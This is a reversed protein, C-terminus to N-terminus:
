TCHTVGSLISYQDYIRDITYTLLEHIRQEDMFWDITTTTHGQHYELWNLFKEQTIIENNQFFKKLEDPLEDGCQRLFEEVDYWHLTGTHTCLIYLVLNFFIFIQQQKKKEIIFYKKIFKRQMREKESGKYILGL